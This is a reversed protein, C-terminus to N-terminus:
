NLLPPQIASVKKLLMFIMPKMKLSGGEGKNLHPLTIGM